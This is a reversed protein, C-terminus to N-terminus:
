VFVGFHIIIKICFSTQSLIHSVFDEIRESITCFFHVVESFINTGDCAKEGGGFTSETTSSNRGCPNYLSTSSASKKTNIL